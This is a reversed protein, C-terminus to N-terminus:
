TIKDSIYNYMQRILFNENSITNFYQDTFHYHFAKNWLSKDKVLIELEEKSILNKESIPEDFRVGNSDVHFFKDMHYQENIVLFIHEFCIKNKVRYGTFAIKADIGHEEFLIRHLTLAFVGCGGLNINKVRRNVLSIRKNLDVMNM